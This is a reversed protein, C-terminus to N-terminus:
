NKFLDKLLQGSSNGKKNNDNNGFLGRVVDGADKGKFQEGLKRVTDVTSQVAKPDSLISNLDPQFSLNDWPGNVRVPVEIGNLNAQGGQGALSAVLRPRLIMDLKRGGIDTNGSGTVRLLPSNMRLDQTNAIGRSINFSASLESFDTKATPTQNVGSIQGSQLGRLIQPINWGVVAGDNFVFNAKGSLSSMLNQESRGNGAIAATLRATGAILDLDAADKLLPQASVNAVAINASFKLDEADGLQATLVGRGNGGYFEIKDLDARASGNTLAIRLAMDKIALGAVRLDSIQLRADADALRMASMDIPERSWGATKRYDRVQPSFRGAGKNERLIDEISRPSRLHAPQKILKPHAPGAGKFSAGLKDIDLQAINLDAKIKPRLDAFEVAIEGNSRTEGLSLQANSLKAQSQTANLNGKLDFAGLGKGNPLNTGAFYALKQLSPSVISVPGVIRVTDELTFDGEFAANVSSSQLNFRAKATRGQILADPTDLHIKINLREGKWNVAGDVTLPDATRRGTIKIDVNSIAQMVGSREDRYQIHGDNIRLEHWELSALIGTGVDPQAARFVVNQLQAPQVSAGVVGSVTSPPLMALQTPGALATIQWNRRGSKDVHLDIIPRNLSLQEVVIRGELLPLMAVAVNLQDARITPTDQMGPPSSIAINPLSVGISPFFTLSPQGTISLDRGTNAKVQRILESRVISAPDIVFVAATIAGALLIVLAAFAFLFKGLWSHQPPQPPRRRRKRAHSPQAVPQRSYHPSPNSHATRIM